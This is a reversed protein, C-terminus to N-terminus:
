VVSKRDKPPFSSRGRLPRSPWRHRKGNEMGAERREQRRNKKILVRDPHQAGDGRVNTKIHHAHKERYRMFEPDNADPIYGIHQHWGDYVKERAGLAPDHDLHLDKGDCGLTAAFASLKEVLLAGLRGPTKRREDIVRDPWMEGLQRLM